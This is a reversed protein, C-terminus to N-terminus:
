PEFTVEKGRQILSHKQFIDDDRYPFDSRYHSGRSEERALASRTILTALTHLNIVEHDTRTSHERKAAAVATSTARGPAGEASSASLHKHATEGAQATDPLEIKKLSELAVALEKGNRLIGVHRWM